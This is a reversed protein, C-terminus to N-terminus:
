RRSLATFRPNGILADLEIWDHLESGALGHAAARELWSLATARDDLDVYVVAGFVLVHPDDLDPPLANLQTIARTRDGSKAHYDALSIRADVDRPNVTLRQTVLEIARAYLALADQRKGALYLARATNGLLRYSEPGVRRAETFKEVAEDFRRLNALTAGWNQYASVSPVLAASKRCAAIAEDYRGISGYLGCVIYYVRANDPTLALARDYQQVAEAYRAHERYFTGLWVRTAWYQPRLVIADKYTSEAALPDTREVARALGLTAEDNMPELAVARRFERAAEDTQGTGLAVTGLCVHSASLDPDISVAQACATRAQQV